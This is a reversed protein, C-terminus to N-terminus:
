KKKRLLMRWVALWKGGDNILVFLDRGDEIYIKGKKEYTIDFKYEAFATDDFIDIV